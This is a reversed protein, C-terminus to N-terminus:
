KKWKEVITKSIMKYITREKKNYALKLNFILLVNGIIMILLIIRYIIFSRYNTNYDEVKQM